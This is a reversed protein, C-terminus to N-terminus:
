AAFKGIGAVQAAKGAGRGPSAVLQELLWPIALLILGLTILKTLYEVTPLSPWGEGPLLVGATPSSAPAEEGAEHGQADWWPHPSALPGRSQPHSVGARM